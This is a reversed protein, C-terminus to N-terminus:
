VEYEGPEVMQRKTFLHAMSNSEDWGLARKVHSAAIALPAGVNRLCRDASAKNLLSRLPKASMASCREPSTLIERLSASMDAKAMNERRQEGKVFLAGLVVQLPDVADLVHRAIGRHALYEIRNIGLGQPRGELVDKTLELSALHKLRHHKDLAVVEQGEIARAIKGGVLNM